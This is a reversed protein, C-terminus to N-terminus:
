QKVRRCCHMWMGTSPTLTVEYKQAAMVGEAGGMREALQFSFNGLLLALIATYNMKAFAMGVCQRRGDSFPMFRSVKGQTGESSTHQGKPDAPMYEADPELWREPLFQDADKYVASSMHPLGVPLFINANRPIVLKGDDLSLDRSSMRVTVFGVVTHMRMSEKIVCSLYTLKTLDAYDPARPHPNNSTALLGHADLEAVMKKEVEPHQSICFLTWAMTNGTTDFGAWFLVSIQPLLYKDALVQGTQPDQLRMLQAAISSDEESPPGKAKVEQLLDIMMDHFQTIATQGKSPQGPLQQWLKYLPNQMARAVEANATRIVNLMHAPQGKKFCAINHYPKDFGTLGLADITECMCALSMDVPEKDGLLKLADVLQGGVHALKPYVTRLAQPAFAPAVGKRVTKWLWDGPDSQATVLDAIGAPGMLQRFHIYDPRAPKYLSNDHLLQAMLYPDSVVVTQRWLANFYFVGSGSVIDENMRQAARLRNSSLMDLLGGYLRNGKSKPLKRLM